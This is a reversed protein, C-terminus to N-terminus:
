LTSNYKTFLLNSLLWPMLSVPRMVSAANLANIRIWNTPGKKRASFRRRHANSPVCIVAPARTKMSKMTSFTKASAPRVNKIGYIPMINM